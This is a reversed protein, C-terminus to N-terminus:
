VGVLWLPKINSILIILRIVIKINATNTPLSIILLTGGVRWV